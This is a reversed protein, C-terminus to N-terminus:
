RTSGNDDFGPALKAVRPGVYARNRLWTTTGRGERTVDIFTVVELEDPQGNRDLDVFFTDQRLQPADFWELEGTAADAVAVRLVPSGTPLTVYVPVLEGTQFRVSYLGRYKRWSSPPTSGDPLPDRQLGTVAQLVCEGAGNLAVDSNGVLAVAFRRQPAWLLFSTWGNIGGDHWRIPEGALTESVIGYGYRQGPITRTSVRPKQLRQASEPSLVAGGDDLLTIAWRALDGATTFATGAPDTWGCQYSTPEYVIPAGTEPDTSHGASINGAAVAEASSAFTRTMGAPQWISEHMLQRYPKGAAREAVLGALAFGGNSYNWFSGAPAFLYSDSLSAAWRSLTTEDTPCALEFFDPVAASHTLLHEIRIKEEKYRGAFHLEPILSVVKEDLDLLGHEREVLLAAATMMKQISGTRFITEADVPEGTQRNKVGFGHQYAIQGDVVVALAAGPIARGDMAAQVCANVAAEVEPRWEAARGTTWLLCSILAAFILKKQNM